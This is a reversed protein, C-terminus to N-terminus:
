ASIDGEETLFVGITFQAVYYESEVSKSFIPASLFENKIYKVLTKRHEFSKTTVSIQIMTQYDANNDRTLAVDNLFDLFIYDQGDLDELDGIHVSTQLPNACLYDYIEKQTYSRKM